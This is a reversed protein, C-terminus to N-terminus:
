EVSTIKYKWNKTNIWYDRNMNFKEYSIAPKHLDCIFLSFDKFNIKQHILVVSFHFPATWQKTTNEVGWILIGELTITNDIVSFVDILCDDLWRNSDWDKVKTKLVIDLWGAFLFSTDGLFDNYYGSKIFGSKNIYKDLETSLLKSSRILEKM